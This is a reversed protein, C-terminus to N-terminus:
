GIQAERLFMALQPNSTVSSFGDLEITDASKLM